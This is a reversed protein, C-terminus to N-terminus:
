PAPNNVQISIIIVCLPSKQVSLILIRQRNTTLRKRLVRQGLVSFAEPSISRVSSRACLQSMLALKRASFVGEMTCDFDWAPSFDDHTAKSYNQNSPRCRDQNNGIPKQRQFHHFVDSSFRLQYLSRWGPLLKNRFFIKETNVFVSIVSIILSYNRDYSSRCRSYM